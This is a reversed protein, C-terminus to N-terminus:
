DTNEFKNGIIEVESWNIYEDHDWYTDDSEIRFGANKYVVIGTPEYGGNHALDDKCYPDPGKVIDGEYIEIGNLDNEGIYSMIVVKDIENWDNDQEDGIWMTQFVVETITGNEFYLQEIETWMISTTIDWVRYKIEKM